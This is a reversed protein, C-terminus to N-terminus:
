IMAEPDTNTGGQPWKALAAKWSFEMGYLVITNVGTAVLLSLKQLM